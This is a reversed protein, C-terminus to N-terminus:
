VAAADQHLHPIWEHQAQHTYQVLPASITAYDEIFRPYYGCKGLFARLTKLTNPIPWDKIVSTYDPSYQYRSRQSQAGSGQHSGPVVPGEGPLNTSRRRPFSSPSQPPCTPPELCGPLPCGHRGPLLPGRLITSPALSQRCTPFLNCPCQGLWFADSCVPVAWVSFLVRNEGSRSM